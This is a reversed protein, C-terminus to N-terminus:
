QTSPCTNPPIPVMSTYPFSYKKEALIIIPNFIHPM